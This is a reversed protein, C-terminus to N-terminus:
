GDHFCFSFSVVVVKLCSYCKLCELLYFAWSIVLSNSRCGIWTESHFLFNYSLRGSAKSRTPFFHRPSSKSASRSFSWEFIPCNVMSNSKTMFFDLCSPMYASTDLQEFFVMRMKTKSVLTSQQANRVQRKMVFENFSLCFITLVHFKLFLGLDLLVYAESQWFASKVAILCLLARGSIRLVSWPLWKVERSHILSNFFRPMVMLMSPFPRQLSLM